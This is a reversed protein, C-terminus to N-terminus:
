VVPLKIMGLMFLVCVIGGFTSFIATPLLLLRYSRVWHDSFVRDQPRILIWGKLLSINYLGIAFNILAILWGIM